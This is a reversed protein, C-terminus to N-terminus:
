FLSGWAIGCALIVALFSLLPKNRKDTILNFLVSNNSSDAVSLLEETKETLLMLNERNGSQLCWSLQCFKKDEIKNLTALIESNCEILKNINKGQEKQQTVMNSVDVIIQHQKVLAKINMTLKKFDDKELNKGWISLDEINNYEELDNKNESFLIIPCESGKKRIKQYLDFGNYNYPLNYNIMILSNNNITIINEFAEDPDLFAEIRYHTFLELKNKLTILATEDNDIITIKRKELGM